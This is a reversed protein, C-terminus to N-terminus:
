WISEYAGQGLYSLFTLVLAMAILAAEFAVVEWFSPRWGAQWDAALNRFM